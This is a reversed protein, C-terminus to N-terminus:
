KSDGNFQKHLWEIVKDISKANMEEFTEANAKTLWKNVTEEPISLLTVMRKTESVQEPSALVEPVADKELIDRGYRRAIEDYNFAIIEGDPFEEIRTKKVIAVRENRGRRQLELVLDFLYDLKKYCDFTVGVVKMNDSYEKKAQAIIVVNMDLRSLLALLHAMRRNALSYHRGFEEGTADKEKSAAKLQAASKVLLDNYLITLPDIVLTKYPHEVTLLTRVEAILEDFDTTKFLLGDQEEIKAVYQKQATGGECDIVYPRPFSIAATTKGAGAEGYMFLKLRQEIVSPKVGRLGAMPHEGCIYM